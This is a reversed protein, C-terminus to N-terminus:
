REGNKKELSFTRRYHWCPNEKVVHPLTVPFPYRYNLYQLQDYGHMQVCAPVPIKETLGENVDVDSLREHQKISWVGDLSLFRSSSRRDIIGFKTKIKDQEAFPIYYSRHPEVGIREFQEYEYM